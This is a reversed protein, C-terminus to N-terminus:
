IQISSRSSPNILAQAFELAFEGTVTQIHDSPGQAAVTGSPVPDELVSTASLVTEVISQGLTSNPDQEHGLNPLSHTHSLIPIPMDQIQQQLQERAPSLLHMPDQEQVSVPSTVLSEESIQTRRDLMERFTRTIQEVLLQNYDAAALPTSSLTPHLAMPSSTAMDMTNPPLVGVGTMSQIPDMTTSPQPHIPLFHDSGPLQGAQQFEYFLDSNETTPQDLQLTNPAPNVLSLAQNSSLGLGSSPQYSLGMADPQMALLQQQIQQQQIAQQSQLQLQLISSYLDTTSSQQNSWFSDWDQSTTLTNTIDTTSSPALRDVSNEGCSDNSDCYSDSTVQRPSQAATLACESVDADATIPGLPSPPPTWVSMTKPSVKLEDFGKSVDLFNYRMLSGSDVLEKRRREGSQLIMEFMNLDELILDQDIGDEEISAVPAIEYWYRSSVWEQWPPLFSRYRAWVKQLQSLTGSYALRDFTSDLSKSSLNTMSSASDDSQDDSQDDSRSQQQQSDSDVIDAQTRREDFLMVLMWTLRFRMGDDMTLISVMTAWEESGPRPTDGQMQQILGVRFQLYMNLINLEATTAFALFGILDRLPIHLWFAVQDTRLVTAEPTCGEPRGDAPQQVTITWIDLVNLDYTSQRSMFTATSDHRPMSYLVFSLPTLNYPDMEVFRDIHDQILIQLWEARSQTSSMSYPSTSREPTAPHSSDENDYNTHGYEPESPVSSQAYESEEPDMLDEFHITELGALAIGELNKDNQGAEHISRESTNVQDKPISQNGHDHQDSLIGSDGQHGVNEMGMEALDPLRVQSKSPVRCFNKKRHRKTNARENRGNDLNPDSNFDLSLPRLRKVGTSIEHELNAKMGNDSLQPRYLADQEVQTGDESIDTMPDRTNNNDKQVSPQNGATNTTESRVYSEAEELLDQGNLHMAATRKPSTTSPTRSPSLQTSPCPRARSARAKSSGSLQIHRKESSSGGIKHSTIITKKELEATEEAALVRARIRESFRIPSKLDDM